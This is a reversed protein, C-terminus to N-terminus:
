FKLEKSESSLINNLYLIEDTSKLKCFERKDPEFAIIKIKEVIESWKLPLGGMSGADIFLYQYKNNILSILHEDKDKNSVIIIRKM